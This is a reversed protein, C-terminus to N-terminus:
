GSRLSPDRKHKDGSGVSPYLNKLKKCLYISNPDLEAAHVFLRFADETLGMKLYARGLQEYLQANDPYHEILSRLLGVTEHMMNHLHYWRVMVLSMEAGMGGSALASRTEDLQRREDRTAIAFYSAESMNRVDKKVAEVQWFYTAGPKLVPFVTPYSIQAKKTELSWSKGESDTLTLVYRQAGESEEWQFDPKDSLLTSDRPYLPVPVDQLASRMGGVASLNDEDPDETFFSAALQRSMNAFPKIDLSRMNMTLRSNPNIKVIDGTQFILSCAVRLPTIVTDHDYLKMGIKACSELGSQSYRKVMVGPGDVSVIMALYDLPVLAEAKGAPLGMLMMWVALWGRAWTKM